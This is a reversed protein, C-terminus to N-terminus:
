RNAPLRVPATAEHTATGTLEAHLLGTPGVTARPMAGRVGCESAARAAVGLARQLAEPDIIGDTAPHPPPGPPRELRRGHTVLTTPDASLRDSGDDDAIPQMKWIAWVLLLSWLTLRVALAKPPLIM